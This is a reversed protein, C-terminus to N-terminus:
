RRDASLYDRTQATIRASGPHPGDKERAFDFNRQHTMSLELNLESEQQGSDTIALIRVFTILLPADRGRSLNGSSSRAGASRFPSPLGYKNIFFFTQLATISTPKIM